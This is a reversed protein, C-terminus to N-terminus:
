VAVAKKKPAAKKKKPAAKKKKPAEEEVEEVEEVEELVEEVPEETKRSEIYKKLEDDSPTVFHNMNKLYRQMSYYTLPETKGEEYGLLKALKKDPNINRGNQKDQLDNEKIYNCIYKTVDVRTCLENAGRKTFKSMDSSLKVPKLIGSNPNSKRPTANKTPKLLKKSSNRLNIIERRLTKLYAVAEKNKSERFTKVQEDIGDITTQFSELYQEKNEPKTM